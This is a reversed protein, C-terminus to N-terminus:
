VAEAVDCWRYADHEWDIIPEFEDDVELLFSRVRM